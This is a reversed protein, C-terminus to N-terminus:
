FVRETENWADVALSMCEKTDFKNYDTRFEIKWEGCCDGSADGWKGGQGNDVIHLKTPTRGCPCKKLTQM